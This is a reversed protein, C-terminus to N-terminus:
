DQLPPFGHRKMWKQGEETARFTANLDEDYEMEVFGKEYLMMLDKDIDAMVEKYLEPMIVKLKDLDFRFVAEGNEAVGDWIIAGQDELYGIM